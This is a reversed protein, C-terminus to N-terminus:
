TPQNVHDSVALELPCVDAWAGEAVSVALATTVPAEHEADVCYTVTFPDGATQEAAVWYTVTVPDGATTEAGV